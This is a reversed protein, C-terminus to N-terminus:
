AKVYRETINMAQDGHWRYVSETEAEFNKLTAKRAVTGKVNKEFPKEVTAVVIHTRAIQGNRPAVTNVPEVSETWLKALLEQKQAPTSVLSPDILELVLVPQNHGTGTICANRILPHESHKREYATPHFNIGDQYSILDDTRGCFKWLNKAKAPDPHPTWLDGIHWEEPVFPDRHFIVTHPYSQPNRHIIMEHVNESVPRFELGNSALDFACYDYDEPDPELDVIKCTATIGWQARLRTYQSVYEAAKHNLAASTHTLRRNFGPPFLCSLKGGGYIITRLRKLYRPSEPQSALDQILSPSFFAIDANAHELVNFLDSPQLARHRFANVYIAGSFVVSSMVGLSAVTHFHFFPVLLRQPGAHTCEFSRRMGSVEDIDPLARQADMAAMSAHNFRIPKPLGTTSSSHLILYPDMAAEEYTKNYPYHKVPAAVLFDDLEPILLHQMPRSTLIDDVAVGSASLLISCNCKDM